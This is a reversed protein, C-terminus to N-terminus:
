LSCGERWGMDETVGHRGSSMAHTYYVSLHLGSPGSAWSDLAEPVAPISSTQHSRRKREGDKRAKRQLKRSREM